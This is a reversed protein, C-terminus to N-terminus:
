VMRKAREYTTLFKHCFEALGDIAAEHIREDRVLPECNEDDLELSYYDDSGKSVWIDYPEAMLDYLTILCINKM